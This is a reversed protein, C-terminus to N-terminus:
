MRESAHEADAIDKLYYGERKALVDLPVAQSRLENLAKYVKDWISSQEGMYTRTQEIASIVLDDIKNIDVYNM